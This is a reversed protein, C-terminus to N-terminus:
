TALDTAIEIAVAQLATDLQAMAEADHAFSVYLRGFSSPMILAGARRAELYLLKSLRPNALVSAEDYNLPPKDSFWLSFVTGFGSTSIPVGQVAFIRTIRDRLRDGQAILAEYDCQQLTKITEGVAACAMPNGSYTGFSSVRGDEFAAMVDPRGAIAGIPFGSAIAKGLTTIDPDLGFKHAALGPQLRMGMLVEDSIFLAGNRRAVAQLHRLYGIDAVVSGANALMPEVIVAAIDDYEAFLRDVDARDNYRLVTVSENRPRRDQFVAEKSGVNGFYIDGIWGDYGAGIKAIRTKGTINRALRCSLHVAESGSNVFVIKSLPAMVSALAAAAAEEGEHAFAPSPNREWQRRVAEVVPPFAHGLITAGFGLATDVYRRGDATWIYPGASRDAIFVEGDLAPFVRAASSVQGVLHRM